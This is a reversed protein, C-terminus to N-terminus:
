NTIENSIYINKLLDRIKPNFTNKIIDYNSLNRENYYKKNSIPNNYSMKILLKLLSSM